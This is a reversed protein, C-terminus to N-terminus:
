VATTRRTARHAGDLEFLVMITSYRITHHGPGLVIEGTALREVLEFQEASVDGLQHHAMLLWVFTLLEGGMSLQRAHEQAPSKGAAYILLRVWIDVMLQLAAGIDQGDELMRGATGKLDHRPTEVRKFFSELFQEKTSLDEGPTFKFITELMSYVGASSRVPLMSPQLVLLFFMYDSIVKCTQVLIQMKDDLDFDSNRELMSLFLETFGHMTLLVLEFHGTLVSYLEPSVNLPRRLKGQYIAQHISEKMFTTVKEQRTHRLKSWLEKAGVMSIMKGVRSKDDVLRFYRVVNYQRVSNSWWTRELQTRGFMSWTARSLSSCRRRGQAEISSWARPSLMSTAISCAELFFAGTFLTYTIAIDIAVTSSYYRQKAGTMLIFVVFAVVTFALSVSRLITGNRTQIVRTKTYLEDYMMSLEVEVTKFAVEADQSVKHRSLIDKIDFGKRGVFIKRLTPMFRLAGKVLSSYELVMQHKGDLNSGDKEQNGDGIFQGADRNSGEHKNRGNGDEINGDGGQHQGHSDENSEEEEQRRRDSDINIDEEETNISNKLSKQSACKLAWIREGYKIVGAFFLLAAPIVLRNHAVSNWLVFLVLCVQVLMNLLHRSWLENDEISFATVTDQGGLHVLLFPAWLPTLDHHSQSPFLLNKGLRAQYYTHSDTTTPLHRSLYGLAYVAIFDASLYTLWLLIRLMVRNSRRRHGGFFFLILQLAFSLLLLIQIEWDKLQQVIIKTSSQEM